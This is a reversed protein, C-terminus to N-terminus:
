TAAAETTRSVFNVPEETNPAPLKFRIFMWLYFCGAALLVVPAPHLALLELKGGLTSASIRLGKTALAIIIIPLDSTVVIAAATLGLPIWRKREGGAWLMACAPLMLLLLRADEARHYAPLMTLASIAALALLAGERSRRKRLVAIGWALILVGAIAYSAPDYFHPDDRFVALANQLSIVPGFSRNADGTPGPDDISGHAVESSVNRHLEQVWHPSVPLIWIATCVGLIAAAALTQLGRKRASGGALVFYLWVFGGIHPKMVLSVALLVVGAWAYREKLFCWAAVVCLPIVVGSPNDFVLPMLCNLLMFCAMWGGMAPAADCLDWVLYAAWGLLGAMLWMWISQAVPLPLWTFPVILFLTTPPYVEVGIFSHRAAQEKEPSLNLLLPRVAEFTELRAEDSYPDIHRAVYQSSRYIQGFDGSRVIGPANGRIAGAWIAPLGICLALIM